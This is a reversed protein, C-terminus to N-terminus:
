RTKSSNHVNEYVELLKWVEFELEQFENACIDFTSNSYDLSSYIEKSLLTCTNVIRELINLISKDNM